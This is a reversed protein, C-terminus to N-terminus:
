LILENRSFAIELARGNGQLDLIFVWLKESPPPSNWHGQPMKNKTGASSNEKYKKNPNYKPLLFKTNKKVDKNKYM